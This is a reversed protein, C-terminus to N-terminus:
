VFKAFFECEDNNCIKAEDLNCNVHFVHSIKKNGKSGYIRLVAEIEKSRLFDYMPQAAPLLFDEHSSMIFSPPFDATIHSLVDIKNLSDKDSGNITSAYAKFIEDTGNVIMSKTDYIGCNLAVAKIKVNPLSFEYLKAFEPNTFIAVYHSTLQAGASDGALILNDKDICYELGHQEIFSLAQNIDELAAPFPNEPALRYNINVVVFGRQALSMCYFKYVEKSGYVWAGGHINVIARRKTKVDNTMYIDLLNSEGHTGYSIDYFNNMNEPVTLNADRKKDSKAWNVRIKDIEKQLDHKPNFIDNLM